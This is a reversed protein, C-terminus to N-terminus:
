KRNAMWARLGVFATVCFIVTIMSLGVVNWIRVDEFTPYLCWGWAFGVVISVVISGLLLRRAGADTLPADNAPQDPSTTTPETM